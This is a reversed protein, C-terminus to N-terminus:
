EPPEDFEKNWYSMKRKRFELSECNYWRLSVDLANCPKVKHKKVEREKRKIMEKAVPTRWSPQVYHDMLSKIGEGVKEDLNNELFSLSEEYQLGSHLEKKQIIPPPILDNKIIQTWTEGIM